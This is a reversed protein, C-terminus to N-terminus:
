KLHVEPGMAVPILTSGSSGAFPALSTLLSWREAGTFSLSSAFGSGLSGALGYTSQCREPGIHMLTGGASASEPINLPGPEAPSGASLSGSPRTSHSGTQPSRRRIVRLFDASPRWFCNVREKLILLKPSFQECAISEM